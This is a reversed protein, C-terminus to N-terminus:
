QFTIPKTQTLNAPVLYDNGTESKPFCFFFPKTKYCVNYSKRGVFQCILCKPFHWKVISGFLPSIITM